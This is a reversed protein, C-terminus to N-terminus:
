KLLNVYEITSDSFYKIEVIQTNKGPRPAHIMKGNGIYIGIHYDPEGAKSFVVVDGPVAKDAPIVTGADKEAGVLHYLNLGATKSYVYKVFGSCDWGSPTEGGFVYPTVNNYKMAENVISQKM